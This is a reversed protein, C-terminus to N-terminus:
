KMFNYLLLFPLSLIILYLCGMLFATSLTHEWFMQSYFAVPTAIGAILTVFTPGWRNNSVKYAISGALGITLGGSIAPLVYIGYAGFLLYFPITLLALGPQWWTYFQDGKQIRFFFPPFEGAPDIERFPYQIPATPDKILITSQMYIYKGGEDISWFYGAPRLNAILLYSITLLFAIWWHHYKPQFLVRM